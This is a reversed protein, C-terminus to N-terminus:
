ILFTQPLKKGPISRHLGRNYLILKKKPQTFGIKGEDRLTQLTTKSTIRLKQMAEEHSIWKNAQANLKESLREIVQEVLAQLASDELCIVQM